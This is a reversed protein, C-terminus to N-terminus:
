IKNAHPHFTCRWEGEEILENPIQLAEKDSGVKVEGSGNAKPHRAFSEVLHHQGTEIEHIDEIELIVNRTRQSPAAGNPEGDLEHQCTPTKGERLEHLVKDNVIV